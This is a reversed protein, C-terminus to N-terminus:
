TGADRSWMLSGSFVVVQLRNHPQSRGLGLPQNLATYYGNRLRQTGAPEPLLELDMISIDGAIVTSASKL